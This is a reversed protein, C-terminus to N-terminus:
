PECALMVAVSWRDSLLLLLISEPSTFKVNRPLPLTQVGARSTGWDKILRHSAFYTPLFPNGQNTRIQEPVSGFLYSSIPALRFVFRPIGSFLFHLVPCISYFLIYRFLDPLGGEPSGLFLHFSFFFSSPLVFSFFSLWIIFSYSRLLFIFFCFSIVHLFFM